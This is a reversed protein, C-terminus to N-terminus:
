RRGRTLTAEAVLQHQVARGRFQQLEHQGQDAVPHGGLFGRQQQDACVGGLGHLVQDHGRGVERDGRREGPGPPRGSVQPGGPRHQGAVGPHDVLLRHDRRRLPGCPPAQFGHEVDDQARVVGPRHASVVLVGEGVLHGGVQVGGVGQEGVVVL